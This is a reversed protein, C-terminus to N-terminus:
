LLDDAEIADTRAFYDRRWGLADVEKESMPQLVVLVEVHHNALHTPLELRLTGTQDIRTKIRITEMFDGIDVTERAASLFRRGIM